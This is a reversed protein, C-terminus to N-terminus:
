VSSDASKSLATIWSDKGHWDARNYLHWLHLGNIWNCICQGTCSGVADAIFATLLIVSAPMRLAESINERDCFQTFRLLGAGYSQRSADSTASLLKEFIKTQLHQSIENGLSDQVHLSHPTTWLILRLDAPV